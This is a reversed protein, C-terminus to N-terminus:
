SEEALQYGFTKCYEGTIGIEAKIRNGIGCFIPILFFIINGM